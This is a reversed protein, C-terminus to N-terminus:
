SSASTPSRPRRGDARRRRGSAGRAPKTKAALTRERRIRDIARNRATASWGHAPNRRARRRAALARRRHRVGGARGGRRPRLRRPLRDPDRPRPGVARPLGARPRTVYEAIPRVEIAGGIGPRPSGRRWSSRRTSTTPRSCSSAASRRRSARRVPRRDHAHPRGARARHDGDRAAAPRQGPTVGPTQNIAQYDAYVQNREEDSLADWADPDHPTPTTGQHILLMYKMPDEQHPITARLRVARASISM